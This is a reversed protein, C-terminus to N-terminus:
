VTQEPRDTRICITFVTCKIDLLVAFSCLCVFGSCVVLPSALCGTGVETLLAIMFSSQTSCICACPELYSLAFSVGCSPAM